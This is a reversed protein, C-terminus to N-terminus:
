AVGKRHLDAQYPIGRCSLPPNTHTCTSWACPARQEVATPLRPAALVPSAQQYGIRWTETVFKPLHCCNRYTIFRPRSLSAEIGRGRQMSTLALRFSEHDTM